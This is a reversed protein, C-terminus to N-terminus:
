KGTRRGLLTDYVPGNVRPRNSLEDNLVLQKIVDLSDPRKPQPKSFTQWVEYPWPSEKERPTSVILRTSVTVRNTRTPEPLREGPEIWDTSGDDASNHVMLSTFTGILMGDFYAHGM